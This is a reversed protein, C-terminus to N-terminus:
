SRTCGKEVDLNLFLSRSDTRFRMQVGSTCFTKTYPDKSHKKRSDLRDWYLEEQEKTFRYFHIGNDLEEVRSAGLTIEKLQSLNLKM